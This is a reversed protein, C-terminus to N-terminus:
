TYMAIELEKAVKRPVKPADDDAAAADRMRKGAGAFALAKPVDAPKANDHFIKDFGGLRFNVSFRPENTANLVAHVADERVNWGVHIGEDKAEDAIALARMGWLQRPRVRLGICGKGYGKERPAILILSATESYTVINDGSGDIDPLENLRGRDDTHFPYYGSANMHNVNIGVDGEDFKIVGTAGVERRRWDRPKKALLPLADDGMARRVAAVVDRTIGGWTKDMRKLELGRVAEDRRAADIVAFRRVDPPLYARKTPVGGEAATPRRAGKGKDQEHHGWPKWNKGDADVGGARMARLEGDIRDALAPPADLQLTGWFWSPMETSFFLGSRSAGLEFTGDSTGNPQLDGIVLGDDLFHCGNLIKRNEKRLGGAAAMHADILKVADVRNAAGCKERVAKDRLKQWKADNKPKM